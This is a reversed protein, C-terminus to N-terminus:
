NQLPATVNGAETNGNELQKETVGGIIADQKKKNERFRKVRERTQKKILDKKDAATVAKERRQDLAANEMGKGRILEALGMEIFKQAMEPPIDAIQGTRFPGLPTRCEKLFKVNM